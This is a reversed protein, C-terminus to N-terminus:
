TKCVLMHAMYDGDDLRGWRIRANDEIVKYYLSDPGSACLVPSQQTPPKAFATSTYWRDKNTEYRTPPGKVNVDGMFAVAVDPM